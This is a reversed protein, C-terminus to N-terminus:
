APHPREVTWELGLEFALRASVPASMRWGLRLERDTDSLGPDPVATFRGDRVGHGYRSGARRGVGCIRM